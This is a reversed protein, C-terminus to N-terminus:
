LNGPLTTCTLINVKELDSLFPFLYEVLEAPVPVCFREHWFQDYDNQAVGPWGGAALLGVPKFCLLYSKSMVQYCWKGMRAIVQVPLLSMILSSCM